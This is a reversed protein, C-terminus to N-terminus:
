GSEKHLTCAFRTWKRVITLRKSSLCVYSVIGEIAADPGSWRLGMRLTREVVPFRRRERACSERPAACRCALFASDGATESLRQLGESRGRYRGPRAAPPCPGWGWQREADTGAAPPLAHEEAAGAQSLEKAGSEMRRLPPRRPQTGRSLALRKEARISSAPPLGGRDQPGTAVDHRGSGGLASLEHLTFGHLM